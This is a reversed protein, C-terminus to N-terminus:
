TRFISKSAKTALSILKDFLTRTAIPMRNGGWNDRIEKRAALWSNARLLMPWMLQPENRFAQNSRIFPEEYLPGINTPTHLAQLLSNIIDEDDTPLGEDLLLQAVEERHEQLWNWIDKTPILIQAEFGSDHFEWVEDSLKRVLIKNFLEEQRYAEKRLASDSREKENFNSKGIKIEIFKAGGAHTTCIMKRPMPKRWCYRCSILVDFNDSGIYRLNSIDKGKFKSMEFLQKIELRDPVVVNRIPETTHEYVALISKAVQHLYHGDRGGRFVM